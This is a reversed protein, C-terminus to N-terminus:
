EELPVNSAPDGTVDTKSFYAHTIHGPEGCTVVFEPDDPTGGYRQLSTPDLKACEPKTRAIKNVGAIIVRKYLDTFPEWKFDKETFPGAAQAISSALLPFVILAAILKKM